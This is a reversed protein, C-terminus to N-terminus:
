RPGSSEEAISNSTNSLGGTLEMPDLRAGNGVVVAPVHSREGAPAAAERTRDAVASAPSSHRSRGGKHGGEKMIPPVSPDSV